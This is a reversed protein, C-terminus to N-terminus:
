RYRNGIAESPDLVVQQQRRKLRPWLKALLWLFEPNDM